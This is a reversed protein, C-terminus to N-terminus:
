PGQHATDGNKQAVQCRRAIKNAAQAQLLLEAVETKSHYRKAAQEIEERHGDEKQVQVQDHDTPSMPAAILRRIHSHLKDSAANTKTEYEM